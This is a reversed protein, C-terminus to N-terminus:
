SSVTLSRQAEPWCLFLFLIRLSIYALHPDDSSKSAILGSHLYSIASSLYCPPRSGKASPDFGLRKEGDIVVSAVYLMVVPRRVIVLWELSNTVCYRTYVCYIPGKEATVSANTICDVRSNFSNMRNWHEM